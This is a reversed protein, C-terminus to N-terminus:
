VISTQPIIDLIGENRIIRMGHRDESIGRALIRPYTPVQGNMITPLYVFQVKEPLQVQLAEGVETIHTSVMFVCQQHSTLAAIVALTADYADKVNTGKFLEDFIILLNGSRSVEEAIMKVRLVEAYFHSYGEKLNDPVNISTYIGEKVSFEMERAAVPFGMHAMYVAIGYAKMLTSKGAMNAGTLFIMPNQGTVTLSNTVSNVIAPHHFNILSLRNETTPLAKAFVWKKESAVAAVGLYVDLEYTIRFLAKVEESLESRLLYDYRAIKWIQDVSPNGLLGTMRENELFAVAPSFTALFPHDPALKKLQRHFDQIQRLFTILANLGKQVQEMEQPLGLYKMFLNRSRQSFTQLLSTSGGMKMFDEALSLTDNSVPLKLSLQSFLALMNSRENIATADTLPHRFLQELLREGGTTQTRNFISFMSTNRYKGFLNLDEVTQTDTIFEKATNSTNFKTLQELIGEERVIIMGHRDASLGPELQYTYVPKNGQMKTTLCGFQIQSSKKLTEGAELIHSSIIFLSSHCNTFAETVAVTAEYADKVNTGRFLEDFVVFLKKQQELLKAVKKVRNVEAYFHSYGMDLNDSLNITTFMGDLVTFEMKTAPVPFGMHALFVAISLSKMLTSKGAMNAGTLFFVNQKGTLSINNGKANEVLLHYVGEVKTCANINGPLATAYHLQKKEAVLAVSIYVDLLYIYQLLLKLQATYTFRFLQDLAAIQEFNEKGPVYGSADTKQHLAALVTTIDIEKDLPSDNSVERYKKLATLISTIAHIGKTILQFQDDSGLLQSFKRGLNNDQASLKSREDTNELYKEATDLWEGQFPFAIQLQQFYRFAASRRNIAERDALPLQFMQELAEAGGRTHTRNFLGYISNGAKKGFINLDELTQKDTVFTKM